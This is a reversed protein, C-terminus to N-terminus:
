QLGSREHRHSHVARGGCCQQYGFGCDHRLLPAHEREDDLVADGELALNGEAAATGALDLDDAAQLLALSHDDFARQLHAVLCAHALGSRLWGALGHPLVPHSVPCSSCSSCSPAFLYFGPVSERGRADQGLREEEPTPTMCIESSDTRRGTNAVTILRSSIM